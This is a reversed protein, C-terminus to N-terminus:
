LGQIWAFRERIAAIGKRHEEETIEVSILREDLARMESLMHERARECYERELAEAGSYLFEGLPTLAYEVRPRDGLVWEKDVLGYRYMEGLHKDVGQRTIGLARAMSSPHRVGERLLSVIRLKEESTMRHLLHM